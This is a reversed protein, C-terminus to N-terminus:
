YDGVPFRVDSMRKRNRLIDLYFYVAGARGNFLCFPKDPRTAAAEQAADSFSFNIFQVLRHAERPSGTSGYLYAFFYANGSIGHCLGTGKRLLGREWLVDSISLLEDKLWKLDDGDGLFVLLRCLYLGVALAGHCWQVLTDRSADANPRTPYNGSPFKERLMRKATAVLDRKLGDVSFDKEEQKLLQTIPSKESHITSMLLTLIGMLGHAGGFYQKEHWKYMFPFQDKPKVGKNREYFQRGNRLCGLLIPVIIKQNNIPDTNDKSGIHKNIFLAGYLYGMAGYLLEWKEFTPSIPLFNNSIDTFAALYKESRKPKHAYHYIVAALAYVGAPGTTFSIGTENRRKSLIQLAIKIYYEAKHIFSKQSSKRVIVDTAKLHLELFMWAVGAVGTYVNYGLKSLNTNKDAIYGDYYNEILDIERRAERTLNEYFRDDLPESEKQKRKRKTGVKGWDALNNVFINAKAKDSLKVKREEGM